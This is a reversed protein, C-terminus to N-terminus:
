LPLAESSKTIGCNHKKKLKFNITKNKVYTKTTFINIFMQSQELNNNM